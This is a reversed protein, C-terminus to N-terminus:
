VTMVVIAEGRRAIGLVGRRKEDKRVYLKTVVWTRDRKADIAIDEIFAKIKGEKITVAREFLEAIALTESARAQFRRLNVVGTCIVQGAAISTVRTLPMFVRRRGPVEVVLRVQDARQGWGLSGCQRGEQGLQFLRQRSRRWPSIGAPLTGGPGGSRLLKM